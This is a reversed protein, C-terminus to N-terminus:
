FCLYIRNALDLVFSPQLYAYFILALLAAGAIGILIRKIGQKMQM